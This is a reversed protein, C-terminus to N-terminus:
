QGVIIIIKYNIFARLVLKEALSIRRTTHSCTRPQWVLMEKRSLWCLTSSFFTFHYILQQLEIALNLLFPMIIM